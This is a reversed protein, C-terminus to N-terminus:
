QRRLFILILATTTSKWVPQTVLAEGGSHIFSETVEDGLCRNVEARGRHCEHHRGRWRKTRTQATRARTHGRQSELLDNVGIQRQQARLWYNADGSQSSASASAQAWIDMGGASVVVNWCSQVVLSLSGHHRPPTQSGNPAGRCSDEAPLKFHILGSFATHLPVLPNVCGCEGGAFCLLSLRSKWALQSSLLPLLPSILTLSTSKHCHKTTPPSTADFGRGRVSRLSLNPSPNMSPTLSIALYIAASCKLSMASTWPPRLLLIFSLVFIEPFLHAARLEPPGWNVTTFHQPCCPVAAYCIQPMRAEWERERRRRVEKAWPGSQQSKIADWSHAHAPGASHVRSSLAWTRPANVRTDSHSLCCRPPLSRIPSSWQDSPPPTREQPCKAALM